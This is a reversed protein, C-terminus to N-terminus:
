FTEIEKVPKPATARSMLFCELPVVIHDDFFRYAGAIM